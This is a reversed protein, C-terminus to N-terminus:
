KVKQCCQCTADLADGQPWEAKPAGAFADPPQQPAKVEWETQQLSIQIEQYSSPHSPSLPLCVPVPNTTLLLSPPSPLEKSCLLAPFRLGQLQSLLRLPSRWDYAGTSECLPFLPLPLFLFQSFNACVVGAVCPHHSVMRPPSLLSVARLM